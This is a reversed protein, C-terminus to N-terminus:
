TKWVKVKLPTGTFFVGQIICATYGGFICWMFHIMCALYIIYGGFILVGYINGGFTDLVGFINYLGGFICWMFHILPALYMIYGGFINLDACLNGIFTDLVGSINECFIPM